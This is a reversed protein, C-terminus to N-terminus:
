PRTILAISGLVLVGGLAAMVSPVEAFLLLGIVAGSLPELLLVVSAIQASVRHLGIFLFLYSLALSFIGLPILVPLNDVMVDGPVSFVSPLLVLATIGITWMTQTFSTVQHRIGRGVMMSVAYTIGSLFGALIGMFSDSGIDLKSPESVLVIGVVALIVSSRTFRSGEEKLLLPAMLAVYVPASNVLLAANAATTHQISYTYLSVTSSVIVGLGSLRPIATRYGRFDLPEPSRPLMMCLFLFAFLARFFAIPLAGMNETWRTFIIATSFCLAGIAVLVVGRWDTSNGDPSTAEPSHPITPISASETTDM